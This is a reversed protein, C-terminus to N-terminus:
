VVAPENFEGFVKALTRIMEGVTTMSRVCEMLPQVLNTDPDAAASELERLAAEVAKQDRSAKITRLREIQREVTQDDLRHTELPPEPQDVRYKNVGVIIRQGDEEERRVRYARDALLGQIYGSEVAAVAGGRREIDDMVTVMQRELEDTL